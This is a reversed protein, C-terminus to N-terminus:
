FPVFVREGFAETLIGSNCLWEIAEPLSEGAKFIKESDRPLVMVTNPADPHFVLEDGNVTDGLIICRLANEKTLIDAGEDWFWYESIRDRWEELDRVIRAPPYIRVFDGGLVGQGFKTIYERYGVPFKIHLAVEAHAVENIRVPTLGDRTQIDEFM